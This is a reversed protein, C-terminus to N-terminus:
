GPGVEPTRLRLWRFVVMGAIGVGLLLWAPSKPIVGAEGSSAHGGDPRIEQVMRNEYWPWPQGITIWSEQRSGTAKGGSEFSFFLLLCVIVVALLAARVFRRM